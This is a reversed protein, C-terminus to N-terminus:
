KKTTNTNSYILNRTSLEGDCTEKRAPAFSIKRPLPVVNKRFQWVFACFFQEVRWQIMELKPHSVGIFHAKGQIKGQNQAVTSCNSCNM